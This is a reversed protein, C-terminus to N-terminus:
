ATGVAAGVERHRVGREVSDVQDGLRVARQAAFAPASRRLAEPRQARPGRYSGPTSSPTSTPPVKVSATARRRRSAACRSPASWGRRGTAPRARRPRRRRQAPRRRARLRLRAKGVPHGDAGVRQELLAAGARRQDGGLPEGVQQVIARWFRGCRYRRHAALGAGSAARPAASRRGRASRPGGAHDFLELSSSTSRRTVATRALPASDTAIQRSNEYRSGACSRAIAARSRASSGPDGRRPRARPGAATERTRASSSWRSRRRGRGGARAVVELPEARRGGLAPQGSGSTIFDEPPTAGASRPPRAGPGPADEGPRGAARDAGAQQRVSDPSPLASPMSM